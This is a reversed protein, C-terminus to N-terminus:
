ADADDEPLPRYLVIVRGIMQVVESHEVSAQIQDATARRDAPASELLRIKILERSSLAEEVSTVIAPTVGAAGIHVIPKLHHGQSRLESRRKSTISNSM